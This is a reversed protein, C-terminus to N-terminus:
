VRQRLHHEARAPQALDEAVVLERGLAEVRRARPAVADPQRRELAFIEVPEGIAFIELQDGVAAVALGADGPM